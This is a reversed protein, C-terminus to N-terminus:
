KSPLNPVVVRVGRSTMLAILASFHTFYGPSGPLMVVTGSAPKEGVLERNDFYVASTTIGEKPADRYRKRGLDKFEQYLEGCIQVKTTKVCTPYEKSADPGEKVDKPPKSSNSSSAFSARSLLLVQRSATQQQKATGFLAKLSRRSLASSAAM